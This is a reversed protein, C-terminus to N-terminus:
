AEYDRGPYHIFARDPVSQVRTQHCNGTAAKCITMIDGNVRFLDDGSHNWGYGWATGPLRVSSGDAVAYVKEYPSAVDGYGTDVTAFRGDPSLNVFDGTSIPISLLRQGTAADVIEATAGHTVVARGEAVDPYTSGPLGHAVTAHGTRWTVVQTHHDTGVYVDAGSLSVPPAEWGGWTFTGPVNVTAVDRDTAVDHVVVQIRGGRMTAWALYPERPDASPAFDGTPVHLRATRGNSSVLTFHYPSRGDPIGNANTRVVLGASTFYLAQAPESLSATARGDGLYVTDGVTYAVGPTRAHSGLEFSPLDRAAEHHDGGVAVAGGAVLAVALAAAAGAGWSRRRRRRHGARLIDSSPAPPVDLAEAEDHLLGSLRDTM